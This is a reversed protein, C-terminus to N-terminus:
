FAGIEAISTSKSDYAETVTIKMYRAENYLNFFFKRFPQGEGIPLNAFSGNNTWKEGDLSIEVTIKKPQGHGNIAWDGEFYRNMLSIGHLVVVEGMDITIHHPPEPEGGAWKSHWYTGAKDDLICQALGNGGGEAPEETSFDVITWNTRDYIPINEADAVGSVAIYIVQQYKYAGAGDIQTIKVPLMYPVFSEFKDKAMINVAISDTMSKGKEIIASTPVEFTGEPMPLYDTGCESNYKEVLSMDTALSVTITNDAVSNVTVYDAGTLSVVFKVVHADDTISFVGGIPQQGDPFYVTQSDDDSCAVLGVFLFIYTFLKYITTKM